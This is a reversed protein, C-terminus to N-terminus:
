AAPIEIFDIHCIYQNSDSKNPPQCINAGNEDSIQLPDSLQLTAPGANDNLHINTNENLQWAVMVRLQRPSIQTISTVGNMLTRRVETQWVWRDYSAQQAATCPNAPPSSNSCDPSPAKDSPPKFGGGAPDAYPSAGGAAPSRAGAANIRIRDGLDAILRVATARSNTTRTEVLMRAQVAALGLVGLALILLAILAEILTIGQQASRWAPSVRFAFARSLGGIGHTNILM